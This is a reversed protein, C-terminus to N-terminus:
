DDDIVIAEELTAGSVTPGPPPSRASSASSMHAFMPFSTASSSASSSPFASSSEGNAASPAAGFMDAASPPRGSGYLDLADRAYSPYDGDYGSFHSSSSSADPLQPADISQLFNDGHHYVPSGSRQMDVPQPSPVGTSFSHGNGAAAAMASSSSASSSPYPRIAVDSTSTPTSVPSISLPSTPGAIYSTYKNSGSATASTRAFSSAAAASSSSSTTPETKQRKKSQEDIPEYSGDPKVRIQMCEEDVERLVANMEADVVVDDWLVGKHCIPCQWVGSQQSLELFTSLDFCPLHSCQRGKVALKIRDQLLLDKLSVITDVEALDDEEVDSDEGVVSVEAGEKNEQKVPMRLRTRGNAALQVGVSASPSVSAAATTPQPSSSAPTTTSPPSAHKEYAEREKEQEDTPPHCHQRHTAWHERQHEINCYWENKCRSCRLLDKMGHCVACRKPNPKWVRLSPPAPSPSQEAKVAPLSSSSPMTPQREKIQKVIEETTRERILEIVVAGRFMEVLYSARVVEVECYNTAGCWEGVQLPRVLEVGKKKTKSLKKAEPIIVEHANVKVRFSKDWATHSHTVVSFLRVQVSYTGGTQRTRRLLSVQEPSINFPCACRANSAHPPNPMLLTSALIQVPVDYPSRQGQFNPHAILTALQADPSMPPYSPASYNSQSPRYGNPASSTPASSPVPYGNQDKRETRYASSHSSVPPQPYNNNNIYPVQGGYPYSSSSNSSSPPAYGAQSMGSHPYGGQYGGYGGGAASGAGNPPPYGQQDPRYGHQSPQQPAAASQQRAAMDRSERLQGANKRMWDLGVKVRDVLTEKKAGQLGRTSWHPNESGGDTKDRLFQVITRLESVKFDAYRQAVFRRALVEASIHPLLRALDQYNASTLISM